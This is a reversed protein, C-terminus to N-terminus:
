TTMSPSHHRPVACRREPQRPLAPDRQPRRVARLHNRVDGHAPAHGARVRHDPRLSRQVAPRGPRANSGAAHTPRRRGAPRRPMTRCPHIALVTHAFGGQIAAIANMSIDGFNTPANAYWNMPNVGLLQGLTTPSIASEVSEGTVEPEGIAHLTIGDLDKPTMGADDMAAKAAAFALQKYTLGTDRATPGYGVGVIAVRNKPM